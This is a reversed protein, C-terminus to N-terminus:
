LRGHQADAWKGAPRSALGRKRGSKRKFFSTEQQEKLFRNCCYSNGRRLKLEPDGMKLSLIERVFMEFPIAASFPNGSLGIFLVGDKEAALTPMGPKMAIGHFLIKAGISLLAEETLDKQGVSVGGTTIVLEAQNAAEKLAGTMVELDDGVTQSM